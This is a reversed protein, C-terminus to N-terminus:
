GPLLEAHGAHYADVWKTETHDHIWNKAPGHCLECGVGDALISISTQKPDLPVSHCITCRRDRQPSASKADPLRELFQVIRNSRADFLAAYARNHKDSLNAAAAHVGNPKKVQPGPPEALAWVTYSSQWPWQASKIPAGHCAASTCGSVGIYDNPTAKQ